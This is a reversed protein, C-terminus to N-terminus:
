LLGLKNLENVANETDSFHVANLGAKKAGQINDERDDIFVTEQAKFGMKNLVENYINIDPKVMGMKYSVFWDKIDLVWPWNNIIYNHHLEDINSLISTNFNEMIQYVFPKFDSHEKFINCYINKFDQFSLKVELGKIINNYFDRASSQGTDFKGSYANKFIDVVSQRDKGSVQMFDKLFIEADHNILVNGLDFIVLKIDHM